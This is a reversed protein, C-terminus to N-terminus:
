VLLIQLLSSGRKKKVDICFCQLLTRCSFFCLERGLWCTNLSLVAMFLEGCMTDLTNLSNEFSPSMVSGKM